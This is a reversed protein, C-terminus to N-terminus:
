NAALQLIRLGHMECIFEDPPDAIEPMWETDTEIWM